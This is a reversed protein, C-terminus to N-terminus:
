EVPKVADKGPVEDEFILRLEKVIPRLRVAINRANEAYKEVKADSWTAINKFDREIGKGAKSVAGGVFSGIVVIATTVVLTKVATPIYGKWDTPAASGAVAVQTAGLSVPQDNPSVIWSTLGENCLETLWEERAVSLKSYAINLESDTVRLGLEPIFLSFRNKLKTCRVEYKLDLYYQLDHTM